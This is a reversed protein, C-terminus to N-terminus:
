LSPRLPDAITVVRAGTTTGPQFKLNNTAATGLWLNGYPTATAGIDGAASNPLVSATGQINNNSMSLVGRHFTTGYIQHTTSSTSPFNAFSIYHGASITDDEIRVEAVNASDILIGNGSNLRIRTGAGIYIGQGGSIHFGNSGAAVITGVNNRGAAAAWSNTFHAGVVSSSLSSAFLVGDGGTTTDALFQDAWIYVPANGYSGGSNANQVTFGHLGFGTAVQSLYLRSTGTDVVLPQATTSNTAGYISVDTFFTDVAHDIQVGISGFDFLSGITVFV